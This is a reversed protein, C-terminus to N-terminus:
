YKLVKLTVTKKLSSIKIMYLGANMGSFNTKKMFDGPMIKESIVLEGQTDYVEIKTESEFGSGSSINLWDTVPNPYIALGSANDLDFIDTPESTVIVEADDMAICQTEPFTKRVWFTFRGEGKESGKVVLQQGTSGDSWLYESAGPGADLTVETSTTITRDEGLDVAVDCLVMQTAGIADQGFTNVARMVITTITNAPIGRAILEPWPIPGAAQDYDDFSGDMDLDWGVIPVDSPYCEQNPNIVTGNLYLVDNVNVLYPGGPMVIPASTVPPNVKINRIVYIDTKSPDSNDMVRLAANYLSPYSYKYSPIANRSSTKFAKGDTSYSDAPIASWNYSDFTANTPSYPADFIWQYSVISRNPSETFSVSHHFNVDPYGAGECGADIEMPSATGIAVPDPDYYLPSLTLCEMATQGANDIYNALWYLTNSVSMFSGDAAQGRVADVMFERYWNINTGTTTTLILPAPKSGSLGSKMCFLSYSYAHNKSGSNYNGDNWLGCIDYVTIFSSFSTTTRDALFKLYRDYSNRAQAKTISIYSNELSTNDGAQFTNWGLWGSGALFLGTPEFLSTGSSRGYPIGGDTNQLTFLINALRDKTDQPITLGLAGMEEWASMLSLIASGTSYALATTSSPSTGWGGNDTGSKIQSYALYDVFKQVIAEIKQGRIHTEDGAQAVSGGLRSSALASIGFAANCLIDSQFYFGTGDTIPTITPEGLLYNFIRVADEAYPDNNWRYDNDSYFALPMTIGHDDYTGPKYAPVHGNGALAKLFMASVPMTYPEYASQELFGTMQADTGSRTLRKHLYWLADDLATERMVALQEDTANDADSVSPIDAYILVPYQAFVSNSATGLAPDVSEAVEITAPYLVRSRLEPDVVPYVYMGELSHLYGRYWNGQAIVPPSGMNDFIGDGNGDWRYFVMEAASETRAVAKLITTRGNFSPHPIKPDHSRYPVPIVKLDQALSSIGSLLCFLIILFYTQM